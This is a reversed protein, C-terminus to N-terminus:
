HWISDNGDAYFGRFGSAICTFVFARGDIKFCM